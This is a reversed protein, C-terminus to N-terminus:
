QACVLIVRKKLSDAYRRFFRKYCAAVFVIPFKEHFSLCKLTKFRCYSIGVRTTEHYFIHVSIKCIGFGELYSKKAALRPM